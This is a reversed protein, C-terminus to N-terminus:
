QNKCGNLQYIFYKKESSNENIQFMFEGNGSISKLYNLPLHEQKKSYVYKYKIPSDSKIITYFDSVMEGLLNKTILYPNNILINLNSNKPVKEYSICDPLSIYPEIYFDYKVYVKAEFNNENIIIIRVNESEIKNRDYKLVAYKDKSLQYNFGTEDIFDYFKEDKVIGKIVEFFIVGKGIGLEDIKFSPTDEISDIIREQGEKIETYEDSNNKRYNIDMGFFGIIKVIKLKDM